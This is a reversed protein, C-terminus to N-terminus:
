PCPTITDDSNGLDKLVTGVGDHLCIIEFVRDKERLNEPITITISIANDLKLVKSEVGDITKIISINM